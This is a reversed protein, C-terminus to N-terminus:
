LVRRATVALSVFKSAPNNMSLNLRRSPRAHKRQTHRLTQPARKSGRRNDSVILPSACLMSAPECMMCPPPQTVCSVSQLGRVRKKPTSARIQTTTDM